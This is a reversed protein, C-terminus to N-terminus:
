IVNIEEMPNTSHFAQQPERQEWDSLAIYFPQVVEQTLYKLLDGIIASAEEPSRTFSKLPLVFNGSFFNEARKAVWGDCSHTEVYVLSLKNRTVAETKYLHHYITLLLESAFEQRPIEKEINLFAVMDKKFSNLFNQRQIRRVEHVPIGM